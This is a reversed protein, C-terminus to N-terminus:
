WPRRGGARKREPDRGGSRPQSVILSRGKLPHGHLLHIAKAAQAETAMEVFGFGRSRGSYQDTIINVSEVPGAQGFLLRLEEEEAEFPLNGVYLKSSM